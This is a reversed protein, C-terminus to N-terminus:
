VCGTEKEKPYVREFRSEPIMVCPEQDMGDRAEITRGRWEVMNPHIKYIQTRYLGNTFEAYFWFDTALTQALNLGHMVKDLALMITFDDGHTGFELRRWKYEALGNCTKNPAEFYWDIFYGSARLKRVHVGYPLSNQVVAQAAQERERDEKTEYQPRAM